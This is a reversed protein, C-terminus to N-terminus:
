YKRLNGVWHISFVVRVVVVLPEGVFLGVISRPGNCRRGRPGLDAVGDSGSEVDTRLVQVVVKYLTMKFVQVTTKLDAGILVSPEDLQFEGGLFQGVLDLASAVVKFLRWSASLHHLDCELLNRIFVIFCM